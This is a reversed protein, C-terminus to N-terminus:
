RPKPKGIVGVDGLQTYDADGYNSLIRLKIWHGLRAPTINVGQGIEGQALSIKTAIEFGATASQSSFSIEIDKASTNAPRAANNFSLQSIVAEIPTELVFSHPFTAGRSSSWLTGFDGDAINGAQWWGSADSSFNVVKVSKLPHDPLQGLGAWATRNAPDKLLADEFAKRAPESKGASLYEIGLNNLVSPLSALEHSTARVQEITAVAADHDGAQSRTAANKLQGILAPDLTVGAKAAENVVLSVNGVIAPGLFQNGSVGAATSGSASKWPQYQILGGTLPVIVLILWWYKKPYSTGSGESASPRDANKSGM